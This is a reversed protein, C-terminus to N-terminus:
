YKMVFGDTCAVMLNSKGRNTSRARGTEEAFYFTKPAKRVCSYPCQRGICRFENVFVSVALGVPERFPGRERRLRIEERDEDDILLQLFWKKFISQKSLTPELPLTLLM